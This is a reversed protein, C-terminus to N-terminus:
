RRSSSISGRIVRVFAFPLHLIQVFTISTPAPPEGSGSEQQIATRISPLFQRTIITSSQNKIPLSLLPTAHCRQFNM